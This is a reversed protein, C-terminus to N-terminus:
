VGGFLSNISVLLEVCAPTDNQPSNVLSSVEYVTM